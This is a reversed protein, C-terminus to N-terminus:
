LNRLAQERLRLGMGDVVALGAAEDFDALLFPQTILPESNSVSNARTYRASAHLAVVPSAAENNRLEVLVSRARGMWDRMDADTKVAGPDLTDLLDISM